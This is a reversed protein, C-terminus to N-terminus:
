KTIKISVEIEINKLYPKKGYKIECWVGHEECTKEIKRTLDIAEVETM